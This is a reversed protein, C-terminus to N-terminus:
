VLDSRQGALFRSAFFPNNVVPVLSATDVDMNWGNALDVFRKHKLSDFLEDVGKWGTNHLHPDRIIARKHFAVRGGFGAFVSM